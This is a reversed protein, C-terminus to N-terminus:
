WEGGSAGAANAGAFGLNHSVVVTRFPVGYLRYLPAGIAALEDRLEPSDLVYILETTRMDPDDVFQAMQHELFDIRGYLPIIVSVTPRSPIPGHDTISAIEGKRLAHDQLASLCPFVHDGVFAPQSAAINGLDNLVMTKLTPHDTLVPPCLFEVAGEENSGAMELIWGDALLSPTPTEFYALFGKAATSSAHPDDGYFEDVDPRPFRVINGTLETRSGEPAVATLRLPGGGETRLWGRVYFGLSGVRHISDVYLGDPNEPRIECHPLSERAADRFRRLEHAVSMSEGALGFASGALFSTVRARDVSTAASLAIWGLEEASVGRVQDPDFLVTARGFDVLTPKVEKEFHAVTVFSQWSHAAGDAGATGALYTVGRAQIVAALPDSEIQHDGHHGEGWLVGTMAVVHPTLRCLHQVRGDTASGGYHRGGGPVSASRILHDVTM